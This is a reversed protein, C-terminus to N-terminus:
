CCWACAIPLRCDEVSHIPQLEWNFSWSLLLHSGMHGLGWNGHNDLSHAWSMRTWQGLAHLFGRCVETLISEMYLWQHSFGEEKETPPLPDPYIWFASDAKESTMLVSSDSLGPCIWLVYIHIYGKQNQDQQGFNNSDLGIGLCGYLTPPITVVFRWWHLTRFPWDGHDLGRLIIFIM